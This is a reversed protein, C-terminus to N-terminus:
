SCVDLLLTCEVAPSILENRSREVLERALFLSTLSLESDVTSLILMDDALFPKKLLLSNCQYKYQYEDDEERTTVYIANWQMAICNYHEIPIETV